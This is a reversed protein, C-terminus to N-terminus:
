RARRSPSAAATRSRQRSRQRTASASHSPANWLTVGLGIAETRAQQSADESLADVLPESFDLLAASIKDVV